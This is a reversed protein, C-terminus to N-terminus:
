REYAVEPAAHEARDFTPEHPPLHTQAFTRMRRLFALHRNLRPSVQRRGHRMLDTATPRVNERRVAERLAAKDDTYVTVSERARSASVYFQERSAAPLSATSEAILVRDVNKGQSAHSTTCYGHTLHGWDKAVVWGNSLRIDGAETFGAVTFLAGTNLRHQGDKTKGGTTVRVRDGAALTLTTPHFVQFRAAAATPPARDATVVLRSGSRHGPTNQHFQLMDGPRFNHADARQAESFRAPTWAGFVREEGLAGAQRLAERVAETARRGEAHTPAVVLVNKPESNTKREGIGRVYDAALERYRVDDPLEKVWKMQDLQDFGDLIRCESLAKVAIRYDDREQRRIDTVSAVPIRGDREILRLADGREVASHQRVDGVLIVRAGLDEAHRFVRALSRVGVLSAEDVLVVGGRARDRMKEDVLFRAVTDATRFGEERLV